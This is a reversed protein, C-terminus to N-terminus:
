ARAYRRAVDAAEAGLWDNATIEGEFLLVLRDMVPPEPIRANPAGLPLEYRYVSGRSVGLLQALRAVSWGNKERLVTLRSKTEEM